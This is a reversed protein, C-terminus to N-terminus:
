EPFMDKVALTFGPLVGGGDVTDDLRFIEAKQGPTYVEVTKAEPEVVWVVTGAALYNAIKIRMDDAQDSPSLVEVALDPPNPNYADHSSEPQKEKSIFAVNPIYREGSVRYGGDAGTLRGINNKLLFVFIYGFIRGAVESCYNNTV